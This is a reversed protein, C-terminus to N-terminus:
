GRLLGTAFYLLCAASVLCIMWHGERGKGAVLKLLSAKIHSVGGLRGRQEQAHGLWRPRARPGSRPRLHSAGRDVHRASAVALM